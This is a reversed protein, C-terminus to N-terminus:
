KIFKEEEAQEIENLKLGLKQKLFSGTLIVNMRAKSIRGHVMARGEWEPNSRAWDIKSLKKLVNSWGKPKQSL